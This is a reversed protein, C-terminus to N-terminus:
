LSLRLGFFVNRPNLFTAFPQNPMDIYAKDDLVQKVFGQDAKQYSGNKFQYYEGEGPTQGTQLFYLARTSAGDVILERTVEIPVFEVGTKRIDGPKDGGPIFDYPAGNEFDEFTNKDWHLSRYYRFDDKDGRFGSTYFHRKNFVNTLDAFFQAEGVKTKFNKSFRMDVMWYDKLHTNGQVGRISSKAGELAQGTWTRLQGKRWDGLFAIRWDGLVTSLLDNGLIKEPVLFEINARGFPEPIPTSQYHDTTTRVYNRMRVPNQYQNAFGFNGGKWALYTYNVFGRVWDGRNKSLTVEFGRVDSYNYPYTANYKVESDISEFWVLRPQNSMDRYYGALRLAFLNFLSQEYGLEYMVTKPMPHNPNGIRQVAGTNIKEITFLDTPNLMQRFHGYNFYLKSNTTIPFSVGLRPSLSFQHKTPEQALATDIGAVGVSARFAREWDEFVYWDGGAHFYDMRLGINAVMGKFELKNQAYLAGQQPQRSWVYTPNAHHPHAPDVEGFNTNYDNFYYELGAKLMSWRNLQSTVDFKARWTAVTSSDRASFWHGGNRIGVGLQDTQDRWQWGFPEETLDIPGVSKIITTDREATAYTDYSTGNRQLQVEYFTTPSLTHTFQAGIMNRTIDMPNRYHTAWLTGENWERSLGTETAFDWPYYPMRGTWMNPWGGENDNIGEQKAWLGQIQLKMGKALDSTLKGQFTREGYDKRLMPIVYAEQVQRYSATFRLDGLMKSVVPVPGGITGDLEYDPDHIRLDKRLYHKYAEQLQQATVNNSPDNDTNFRHRTALADWGDFEPYQNQTYQDWVGSKTGKFAVENDFYPRVWFSTPDNPMVDDFYKQSPPSYRVVVDASYRERGGEKTVVNVLGSRVNGYEANFGGTQVQVEDVATYSVGTFPVNDRGSALNLGDVRFAVQDGGGGRITLGREFGAQLGIVEAVDTVPLNEIEQASLNAVSASVDRQVVPREAQVTVEELGFTEESLQFNVETTLDINVRVASKSQPTFGIYTAKLTYTGPRVNLITYYGDVDTTAGQTTGEIVVNVGPLPDGNNADTVTGSLKGTQALSVSTPVLLALMWLLKVLRM